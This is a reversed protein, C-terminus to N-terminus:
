GHVILGRRDVDPHWFFRRKGAEISWNELADSPASRHVTCESDSLLTYPLVVHAIKGQPDFVPNVESYDTFSGKTDNLHREGYVTSVLPDNVLLQALKM